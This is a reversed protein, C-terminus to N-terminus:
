KDEKVIKFGLKEILKLTEIATNRDYEKESEPLEEYPVLCPTTKFKDDRVTGYKWGENIRGIAWIDHTNKALQEALNLIDASLVIDKTDIPNPKYNMNNDGKRYNILSKYDDKFGMMKLLNHYSIDDIEDRVCILLNEVRIFLNYFSDKDLIKKLTNMISFLNNKGFKFNFLIDGHACINRAANLMKLQYELVYDEEKFHNSVKKRDEGKMISFLTIINGFMFYKVMILPKLYEEKKFIEKLDNDYKLSKKINENVQKKLIELKLVSHYDNDLNNSNLLNDEGNKEIYEYAIFSKLKTEVLNIYDLLLNKFERDFNYIAYLEEFYTEDEYNNITNKLNLFIEEYENTLFYYNERLLIEKALEENKFKLGKSKLLILQDEITKYKVKM